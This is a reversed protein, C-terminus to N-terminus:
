GGLLDEARGLVAAGIDENDALLTVVVDDGDAQVSVGVGYLSAPCYAQFTTSFGMVAARRQHCHLAREMWEATLGSVSKFRVVAGVVRSGERYPAVATIDERHFFPSHSIEDTGIGACAAAESNLLDKAAKRHLAAVDRHEEAEELHHATPNMARSWCPKMIPLDEGGSNPVGALPPDVCEIPAGEASRAEPRYHREHEDAEGDHREATELHEAVSQHEPTLPEKNSSGCGIGAALVAILLTSRM